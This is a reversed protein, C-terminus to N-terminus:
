ACTNPMELMSSAMAEARAVPLGAERLGDPKAPLNIIADLTGGGIKLGVIRDILKALHDVERWVMEGRRSRERACFLSM